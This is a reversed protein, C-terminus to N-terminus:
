AMPWTDQVFRQVCVEILRMVEAKGSGLNAPLNSEDITIRVADTGISSGVAAVVNVKNAPSTASFQKIAM